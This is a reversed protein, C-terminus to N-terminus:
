ASGLAIQLVIACSNCNSHFDGGKGKHVLDLDGEDDQWHFCQDRDSLEFNDM